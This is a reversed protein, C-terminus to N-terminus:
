PLNKERKMQEFLEEFSARKATQMEQHRKKELYQEVAERAIKEDEVKVFREGPQPVDELGLIEAPMSQTVENVNRGLHDIMARVRGWTTEFLLVDGRRLTGQQVIVTAVAGKGKDM